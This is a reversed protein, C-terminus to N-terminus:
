LEDKVPVISNKVLEASFEQKLQQFFPDNQLNVEADQQRQSQAIQKQQAPSSQITEECILTIKVTDGYYAGLAQEIRSTISPTFLSQHGKAVRLKIERGSKSVFEANEVATFALGTLKLQTLITGWDPNDSSIAQKPPASPASIIPELQVENTEFFDSVPVQELPKSETSLTQSQIPLAAPNKLQKM